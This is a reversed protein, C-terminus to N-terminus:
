NPSAKENIGLLSMFINLCFWNMFGDDVNVVENKGHDISSMGFKDLDIFGKWFLTKTSFNSISIEGKEQDIQYVLEVGIVRRLEEGAERVKEESTEKYVPILMQEIRGNELRKIENKFITKLKSFSESNYMMYTIEFIENKLPFVGLLLAGEKSSNDLVKLQEEDTPVIEEIESKHDTKKFNLVQSSVTQQTPPISSSLISNAVILFTSPMHAALFLLTCYNNFTNQDIPSSQNSFFDSSFVRNQTKQDILTINVFHTCQDTNNSDKYEITLHKQKFIALLQIAISDINFSKDGTEIEHVLEELIIIDKEKVEIEKKTEKVSKMFEAYIGRFLLEKVCIFNYYELEKRMNQVSHLNDEREKYEGLNEEDMEMRSIQVDNEQNIRSDEQHKKKQVKSLTSTIDSIDSKETFPIQSWNMEKKLMKCVLPMFVEMFMMGSIEKRAPSTQEIRKYEFTLYKEKKEQSRALTVRYLSNKDMQEANQTMKRGSCIDTIGWLDFREMKQLNKDKLLKNKYFQPTARSLDQARLDKKEKEVFPSCFVNISEISIRFNTSYFDKDKLLFEEQKEEILSYTMESEQLDSQYFYCGLMMKTIEPLYKKFLHFRGLARITKNPCDPIRLKITDTSLFVKSSIDTIEIDLEIDTSNEVVRPPKFEIKYQEMKVQIENMKMASNLSLAPNKFFGDFSEKFINEKDFHKAYKLFKHNAPLSKIEEIRSTSCKLENVIFEREMMDDNNNRLERFKSYAERVEKMSLSKSGLGTDM